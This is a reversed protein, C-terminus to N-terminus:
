GNEGGGEDYRRQMEEASVAEIVMSVNWVHGFPDEIRANREGYFEDKPGALIRAGADAARGTLADVDDVSLALTVTTGGRTEPGALGLEPFEDALMLRAGDIDIEAHGIRGTGPEELRLGVTAGFAKAYFELAHAANRVILYPTVSAPM